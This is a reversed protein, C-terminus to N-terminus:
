PLVGAGRAEEAQDLAALLCVLLTDWWRWRRSTCATQGHKPM